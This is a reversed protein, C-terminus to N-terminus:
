RSIRTSQPLVAPRIDDRLQRLDRLQVPLGHHRRLPDLRQLPQLHKRFGQAM